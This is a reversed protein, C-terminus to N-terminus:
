HGSGLEALKQAHAALNAKWLLAVALFFSIGIVFFMQRYEFSDQLFALAGNGLWAHLIAAVMQTVTTKGNSGAVAILPLHLHRRWGGALRQLAALTDPVQLGPLGVAALGHTALAAVAGAARAQPLFTHADFREGRLAVFFDGALLTRTDAHVRQLPTAPDGVLESGPVLAHAQGLTMLTM